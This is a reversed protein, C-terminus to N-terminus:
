GKKVTNKIETFMDKTGGLFGLFFEVFLKLFFTAFLANLLIGIMRILWVM